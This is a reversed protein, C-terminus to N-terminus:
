WLWNGNEDWRSNVRVSLKSLIHHFLFRKTGKFYGLEECHAHPKYGNNLAEELTMTQLTKGIVCIHDFYISHFQKDENTVVVVANAPMTEDVTIYISLFFGIVILGILIAVITKSAKGM